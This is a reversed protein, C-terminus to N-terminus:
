INTDEKPRLGIAAYVNLDYLVVKHRGVIAGPKSGNDTTLTYRGTQDIAGTSRPAADIPWFEVQVNALPKGNMTVTGSVPSLTPGGGCGAIALALVIGTAAARTGRM